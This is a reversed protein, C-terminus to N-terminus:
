HEMRGTGAMQLLQLLRLLPIPNAIVRHNQKYMRPSDTVTFKYTGLLCISSPPYLMTGDNVQYTYNAPGPTAGGAPVLYALQISSVNFRPTM